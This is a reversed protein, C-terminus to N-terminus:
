NQLNKKPVMRGLSLIYRHPLALKKRSLEEDGRAIRAQKAFHDNDIADYGTVMRQPDMGLSEFHRLHPEGGLIAGDFLSLLLRKVRRKFGTARETGAHSENMMICRVGSLKASLLLALSTAPFYSPLFAVQIGKQRWLRRSAMFVGFFSADEEAADTLTILGDVKTEGQTWAYTRSLGGIQVAFTEHQLRKLAAVRAHHYPGFQSFVIAISM